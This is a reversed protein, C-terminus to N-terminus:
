RNITKSMNRHTDQKYYFGFLLILSLLCFSLSIVKGIWEYPILIWLLISTFVLRLVELLLAYTKCEQLTSIVYLSFIGFIGGLLLQLTSFLSLNILWVFVLIINFVHQILIYFGQGTTLKTEYKTINKSTVYRRINLHKAELSRWSPPSLWVKLKSKMGKTVKFDQWLNAYVQFNAKIPNWSALQSSIGFVVPTDVKETQFTGFLKDWLIFIGAFNKDSYDKNLAHHVRHHSPTVFIAEYWIPMKDIHRTHVWFQYVLNLSASIVLMDPPIGLLALPSVIIWAFIAPTSTQRLATTLNYEESSHHVVHSGWMINVTHSFRHIWYYALDYGVLALFWVLYSDYSLEFLRFNQYFYVYFSFPILALLVNTVRSMIGLQLSNIADNFRYFGTKKKYDARLELLILGLFLPIAALIIISLSLEM